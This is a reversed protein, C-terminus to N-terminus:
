EKDLIQTFKKITPILHNIIEPIAQVIGMKSTYDSPVIPGDPYRTFEEHPFTIAGLIQLSTMIPLTRITIPIAKSDINVNQQQAFSLMLLEAGQNYEDIKSLHHRIQLLNIRAIEIRKERNDISDWAKQFREKAEESKEELFTKLSTKELIAKLLFYPTDHGRKGKIENISLIGTGLCYGKTAKEVAQQLHYVADPYTKHKRNWWKPSLARCSAVDRISENLFAIGQTKTEEDLKWETNSKKLFEVIGAINDPIINENPFAKEFAKKTKEIRENNDTM